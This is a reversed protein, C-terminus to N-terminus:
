AREWEGVNECVGELELLRSLAERCFSFTMELGESDRFFNYVLLYHLVASNPYGLFDFCEALVLRMAPTIEGKNEDIAMGVVDLASEYQQDELHDIAKNYLCFVRDCDGLINM